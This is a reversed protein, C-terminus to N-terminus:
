RSKEKEPQKTSRSTADIEKKQSGKAIEPGTKKKDPQQSGHSAVAGGPLKYMAIAKSGDAAVVNVKELNMMSYQQDKFIAALRMGTGSDRGPLIDSQHIFISNKGDPLLFQAYQRNEYLPKQKIWFVSDTGYQRQYDRSRIRVDNVTRQLMKEEMSVNSRVPHQAAINKEPEGGSQQKTKVFSRKKDQDNTQRVTEAKQQPKRAAADMTEQASKKLAEMEKTDAGDAKKGTMMYDTESIPGVRIHHNQGATHDLLMAKMKVADSSSIAYQTRGDGGCLDPMRAYLIGHAKMEKEIAALDEKKESSVNIFIFDDGKIQRLRNGSVNQAVANRNKEETQKQAEEQTEEIKMNLRFNEDSLLEIQKQAAEREKQHETRMEHLDRENRDRDMENIQKIYETLRRIQASDIEQQRVMHRGMIDLSKEVSSNVPKIGVPSVVSKMYKELWSRIQEENPEEGPVLNKLFDEGAAFAAMRLMDITMSPLKIVKDIFANSHKYATLLYLQERKHLYEDSDPIGHKKLLQKYREDIENKKKETANESVEPKTGSTKEERHKNISDTLAEAAM